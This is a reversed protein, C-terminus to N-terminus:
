IFIPPLDQESATRFPYSRALREDLPPNPENEGESFTWEIDVFESDRWMGIGVQRPLDLEHKSAMALSALAVPARDRYERTVPLILFGCETRGSAIRFPLEFRNARVAELGFRLQQKLAKLEYRGLRALEGLIEYRDTDAYEDPQGAIAGALSDLVFSFECAAPGGKSRAAREFRQDPGTSYDELLYQGVLAVESVAAAATDWNVLVDRRFRFYDRLEAPNTFHECIEFYEADRLIHIFAGDKSQKFRATRFPRSKPPVRYVIVCVLEESDVPTVTVRHGFQNVLSLAMFSDLLERTSQIQKVGKRVITNAVWKELDGAKTAVKHEREKLLFVFGIDDTLVVRDALETQDEPNRPLHSTPFSYARLFVNAHQQAAFDQLLSSPAPSSDTV